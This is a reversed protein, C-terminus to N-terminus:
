SPKEPAADNAPAETETQAIPASRRLHPMLKELMMDAVLMGLEAGRHGMLGRDIVRQVPMGQLEACCGPPLMASIRQVDPAVGPPFAVMMVHCMGQPPLPTIETKAHAQAGLMNPRRGNPNETTM